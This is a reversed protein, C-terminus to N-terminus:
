FRCCCRVIVIMFGFFTSVDYRQGGGLVESGLVM